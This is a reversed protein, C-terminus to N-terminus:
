IYYFLFFNNPALNCLISTKEKGLLEYMKFPIKFRITKVFFASSYMKEDLYKLWIGFALDYQNYCIDSVVVM